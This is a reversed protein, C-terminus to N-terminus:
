EVGIDPETSSKILADYMKFRREAEKLQKETIQYMGACFSEHMMGVRCHEPWHGLHGM